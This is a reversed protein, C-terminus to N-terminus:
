APLLLVVVFVLVLVADFSACSAGATATILCYGAERGAPHVSSTVRPKPRRLSRWVDDRGDEAAGQWGADVQRVGWTWSISCLLSVDTASVPSTTLTATTSSATSAEGATVQRVRLQHLDRTQSLSRGAQEWTM